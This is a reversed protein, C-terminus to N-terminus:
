RAKRPACCEFHVLMHEGEPREWLLRFGLGTLLHRSVANDGRAFAVVRAMGQDEFGHRLTAEAAERAYGKGRAIPLLGFSIEPYSGDELFRLGCEGVFRGSDREVVAYMGFGHVRWHRIMDDIVANAAERDLVGLKRIEMVAPQALFDRFDRRHREAVPELALRGTRLPTM